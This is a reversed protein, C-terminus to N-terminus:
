SPWPERARRWDNKDHGPQGSKRTGRCGQLSPLEPFVECNTFWNSVFVLDRPGERSTRYAVRLDGNMAYRTESFM